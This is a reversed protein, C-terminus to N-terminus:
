EDPLSILSNVVLIEIERLERGFSKKLKKIAKLLGRKDEESQMNMDYSKIIREIANEIQGKEVISYERCTNLISYIAETLMQMDLQHTFQELESALIGHIAENMDLLEKFQLKAMQICKCSDTDETIDAETLRECCYSVMEELIKLSDGCDEINPFSAIYQSVFLGVAEKLKRDEIHIIEMCREINIYAFLEDFYKFSLAVYKKVMFLELNNVYNMDYLQWKKMLVFKKFGTWFPIDPMLYDDLGYQNFLQYLLSCAFKANKQFHELHWPLVKTFLIDIVDGDEQGQAECARWRIYQFMMDAIDIASYNKSELMKQYHRLTHQNEQYLVDLKDELFKVIFHKKRELRPSRKGKYLFLMGYIVKDAVNEWETDEIYDLFGEECIKRYVKPRVTHIIDLLLLSQVCDYNQFFYQKEEFTCSKMKENIVHIDRRLYGCLKKTKGPIGFTKDLKKWCKDFNRVISNCDADMSSTTYFLDEKVNKKLKEYENAINVYQCGNIEWADSDFEQNYGFLIHYNLPNLSISQDFEEGVEENLDTGETIKQLVETDCAVVIICRPYCLMERIEHFIGFAHEAENQKIGSITVFVIESTLCNSIIDQVTQISEKGIFHPVIKELLLVDKLIKSGIVELLLKMKKICSVVLEKFGGTYLNMEKMQIKLKELFYKRSEEQNKLKSVDVTVRIVERGSDSFSDAMFRAFTRKGIGHSGEIIICVPGKEIDKSIEEMVIELQQKREPYIVIKQSSNTRVLQFYKKIILLSAMGALLCWVAWLVDSIWGTHFITDTIEYWFLSTLLEMVSLLFFIHLLPRVVRENKQKRLVYLLIVCVVALVPEIKAVVQCLDDLFLMRYSRISVFFAILAIGATMECIYTKRKLWFAHQLWKLMPIVKKRYMALLLVATTLYALDGIWFYNQGIKLFSYKNVM